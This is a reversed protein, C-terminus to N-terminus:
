PATGDKTRGRGRGGQPIPSTVLRVLGYFELEALNRKILTRIQNTRKWGIREGIDKDVMRPEGDFVYLRYGDHTFPAPGATTVSTTHSDAM